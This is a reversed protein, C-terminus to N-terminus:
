KKYCSFQTYYKKKDHNGDPVYNIGFCSDLHVWTNGNPACYM